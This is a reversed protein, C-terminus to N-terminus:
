GPRRGRSRPCWRASSRSGGGSRPAPRCWVGVVGPGVQGYDSGGPAASLLWLEPGQSDGEDARVLEPAREGGGSRRLRQGAPQLRGLHAPPTRRPGGGAAPRRRRPCGRRGGRRGPRRGGAPWRSRAAPRAPRPPTPPAARRCPPPRTAGPGAAQGEDAPAVVGQGGGAPPRALQDPGGDPAPGAADQHRDAPRGHGVAAEPRDVGEAPRQGPELHRHGAVDRGREDVGGPDEAGLLAGGGGLDGEEGAPQLAQGLDVPLPGADVDGGQRWAPAAPPSAPPRAARPARSSGPKSTTARAAPKSAASSPTSRTTVPSPRKSRVLRSPLTTPPTRSHASPRLADGCRATTAPWTASSTCPLPSAVGVRQPRRGRGRGEDVPHPLRPLGPGPGPQQGLLRRDLDAAPGQRARESGRRRICGGATLGAHRSGAVALSRRLRIRRAPDTAQAKTPSTTAMAMRPQTAHFTATMKGGSIRAPAITKMRLGNM